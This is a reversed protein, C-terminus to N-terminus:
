SANDSRACFECDTRQGLAIERRIKWVQYRYPETGDIVHGCDVRRKLKTHRYDVRHFAFGEQVKEWALYDALMDQELVAAPVIVARVGAEGM